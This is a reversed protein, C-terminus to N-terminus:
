EWSIKDITIFPINFSHHMSRMYIITDDEFLHNISFCELSDKTSLISVYILSYVEKQIKRFKENLYVHKCFFCQNKQLEIFIMRQLNLRPIKIRQFIKTKSM